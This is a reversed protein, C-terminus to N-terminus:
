LNFTEAAKAVFDIVPGSFIGMAVLLIAALVIIFLPAKPETLKTEEAPDVLYVYKLINLYYGLSLVSNLIAVLALWVLDANVAGLFLVFKSFFGATPPIGALSILFVSLKLSLM